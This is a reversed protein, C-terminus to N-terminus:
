SEDQPPLPVGLENMARTLEETRTKAHQRVAEASLYLLKTEDSELLQNEARVPSDPLPEHTPMAATAAYQFCPTHRSARAGFAFQRVVQARVRHAGGGRTADDTPVLTYNRAGLFRGQLRSARSPRDRYFM